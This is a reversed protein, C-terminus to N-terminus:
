DFFSCLVISDYSNILALKYTMAAHIVILLTCNSFWNGLGRYLERVNHLETLFHSICPLCDDNCCQISSELSLHHLKLRNPFM